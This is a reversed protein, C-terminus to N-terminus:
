TRDLVLSEAEFQKETTSRLDSLHGELMGVSLMVCHNSNFIFMSIYISYLM